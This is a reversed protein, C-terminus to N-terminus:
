THQPYPGSRALEASKLCSAAFHDLRLVPLSRYVGAPIILFPDDPPEWGREMGRSIVPTVPGEPCLDEGCVNPDCGSQECFADEPLRGAILTPGDQTPIDETLAVGVFRGTGQVIVDPNTTLLASVTVPAPLNARM